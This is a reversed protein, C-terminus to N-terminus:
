SIKNESRISNECITTVRDISIGGYLHNMAKDDIYLDCYVKRVNANWEKKIEPLNDNVADFVIGKDRCWAVAEELAIGERCTWLILRYGRNKLEKCLEIMESIPEGINPFEEKCLTGDFDMAIIKM